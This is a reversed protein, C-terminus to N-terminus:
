ILYYVIQYLALNQFYNLANDTTESMIKHLIQLGTIYIFVTKQDAYTVYTRDVPLIHGTKMSFCSLNLM